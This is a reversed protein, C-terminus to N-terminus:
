WINTIMAIQFMYEKKEILVKTILWITLECKMYWTECTNDM